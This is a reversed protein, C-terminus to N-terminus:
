SNEMTALRAPLAALTALEAVDIAALGAAEAAEVDLRGHDGVYVCASAVVGLRALCADFIARAPKAAGCDVPLVIQEFHAHVGLERLIPPLRQDFNSVIALRRGEARLAALAPEADPRLRWAAGRAFHEWLAAFYADFDRFRATGDAALFTERM